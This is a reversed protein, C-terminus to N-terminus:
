SAEPDNKRKKKLALSKALASESGKVALEELVLALAEDVITSKSICGKHQHPCIRRLEKKADDLGRANQATLYVTSKKKTAKKRKSAQKKQATKPVPHLTKPTRGTLSSPRQQPAIAEAHRRIVDQLENERDFTEDQSPNLLEAMVDPAGQASPGSLDSRRRMWFTM